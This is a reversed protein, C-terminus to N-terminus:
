DLSPPQNILSLKQCKECKQVYALADKHLYVLVEPFSSLTGFIQGGTHSGYNGEHMKFLFDEVKDPHVCQLYGRSFSRRYLLEELSIWYRVLQLRIKHTETNDSSLTSQKLYAIILDMWSHGLNICLVQNLKSKISPKPIYKM